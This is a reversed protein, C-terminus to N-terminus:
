FVGELRDIVCEVYDADRNPSANLRSKVTVVDTM